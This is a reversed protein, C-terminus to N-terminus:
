IEIEKETHHIFIEHKYLYTPGTYDVDDAHAVTIEYDAVNNKIAWEYLEKITM